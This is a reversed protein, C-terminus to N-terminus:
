WPNDVGKLYDPVDDQERLFRGHAEVGAGARALRFHEQSQEELKALQDNAFGLQDSLARIMAIRLVSGVLDGRNATEAWRIKDMSLATVKDKALCSAMRPQGQQVLSCMGFADGEDLVAVPEVRDKGTAVLVEVEGSAIVFMEDGPEGERCLFHGKRAGVANFCTAVEALVEPKADKFLESRSLVKAGDVSASTLGGGGLVDAMRDFFGRSPVVSEVPTGKALSAIRDGTKRLRDSLVSLAHDEIAFAAPHKARRLWDYQEWDLTLLRVPTLTEVSASRAHGTFLAMEGLLEGSTVRGLHTEGKSVGLEGAQIICLTPDQDGEEILRVGAAVDVVQFRQLADRVDLPSLGEFIPPVFETM